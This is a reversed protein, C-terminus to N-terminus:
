NTKAVLHEMMVEEQGTDEDNKPIIRAVLHTFMHTKSHSKLLLCMQTSHEATSQVTDIPKHELFFDTILLETLNAFLIFWYQQGSTRGRQHLVFLLVIAVYVLYHQPQVAEDQPTLTM